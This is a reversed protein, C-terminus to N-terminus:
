GWWKDKVVLIGENYCMKGCIRHLCVHGLSFFKDVRFESM